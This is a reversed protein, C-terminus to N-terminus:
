HKIDFQNVYWEEGKREVDLGYCVEFTSDLDVFKTFSKQCFGLGPGEIKPPDTMLTKLLIPDAM